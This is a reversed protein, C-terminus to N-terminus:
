VGRRERGVRIIYMYWFYYIGGWGMGDVGGEMEVERDLFFFEMTRVTVKVAGKGERGKGERGERGKGERRKGGRRKGERGKGEKEERGGKGGKGGKGGWKGSVVLWKDCGSGNGYRYFVGM